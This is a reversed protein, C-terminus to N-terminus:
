EILHKLFWCCLYCFKPWFLISYLTQFKIFKGYISYATKESFPCFCNQCSNGERFTYSVSALQIIIFEVVDSFM